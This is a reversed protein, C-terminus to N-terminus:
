QNKYNRELGAFKHYSINIVDFCEIKTVEDPIELSTLDKCSCFAGEGIIKTKPPIITAKCGLVLTNTRTEMIANCGNSSNYMKNNTGVEILQLSNCAFFARKGILEVSSPIYLSTLKSCYSFAEGMIRVIGEPLTISFLNSCGFFSKYGIEKITNPFVVSYLKSCGEFTFSKIIYVGEPIVVSTLQTCSKFAGAGIERVNEPITVSELSSCDSFAFDEIKSVSNPIAISTLRECSHFANDGIIKVFYTKGNFVIESPIVVKGEYKKWVVIANYDDLKYKIGDIEIQEQVMNM